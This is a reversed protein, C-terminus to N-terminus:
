SQFLKKLVPWLQKKLPEGANLDELSDTQLILTHDAHYVTNRVLGAPLGTLGDPKGFILCIGPAHTTILSELSVPDPQAPAVLTVEHLSLRCASLIKELFPMLGTESFDGSRSEPIVLIEKKGPEPLEPTEAHGSHMLPILPQRYLGALLFPDLQLKELSM